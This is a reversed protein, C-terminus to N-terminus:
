RIGYICVVMKRSEPSQGSYGPHAPLLLYMEGDEPNEPAFYLYCVLVISPSGGRRSKNTGRDRCHGGNKCRIGKRACGEWNIRAQNFPMILYIFLTINFTVKTTIVSLM